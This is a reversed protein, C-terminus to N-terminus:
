KGEAAPFSNLFAVVANVAVQIQETTPAPLNNSSAFEKFEADVAAVVSALKQPGSGNQQGAVIAMSEAKAVESVVANFLPGIGPFAIDVFPEALVATGVGVKFVKELGKGINSLISTFAM